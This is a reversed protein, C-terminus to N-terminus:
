PMTVLRLLDDVQAIAVKQQRFVSITNSAPEVVVVKAGPYDSVLKALSISGNSTLDDEDLIIVDPSFRDIRGSCDPDLVDIGGAEVEEQESLWRLLGKLMLSRGYLVLIRCRTM